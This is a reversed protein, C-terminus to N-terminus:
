LKSQIKSEEKLKDSTTPEISSSPEQAAIAKNLHKLRVVMREKGNELDKFHPDKIFNEMYEKVSEIAEQSYSTIDLDEGMGPKYSAIHELLVNKELRIKKSEITEKM